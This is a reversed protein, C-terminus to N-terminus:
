AREAYRGSVADILADGRPWLVFSILPKVANSIGMITGM